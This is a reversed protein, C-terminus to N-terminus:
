SNLGKVLATFVDGRHEFSKFQDYSACAPSLLVVGHGAEQANKHAAMLASELTGCNETIVRHAILWSSFNDAAEGIVYAQKVHPMLRELGQLGGDKPKGGVIWHIDAYSALAKGAADANTAKSDNIYNIGNITRVTFLRHPLGPYTRMAEIIKESSLGVLRAVAYAIAANQHNHVGPLNAFESLDGVEEAEGTMADYLIGDEMDVGREVSGIVSVTYVEREEADLVQAVMRRSYEDDIGIVAHGNGAFIRMKAAMYGNMDGHRDLHDPTLNIHVGIDPAFSTCLDLQFSSLELLFIDAPDLELVATGINGGVAVSVGNSRLIHGVLATTTSKGNTGTIGITKKGLGARGLLEVDGIIEVGDRRAREVVPHPQPFYLPVGPSLVLAAFPSLNELMDIEAGLKVAAIRKPEDDDWAYVRAKAAVLARVTALGSLGLGYVAVPKGQLTEVYRALDIM